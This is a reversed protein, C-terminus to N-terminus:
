AAGFLELFRGPWQELPVGRELFGCGHSVFDPAADALLHITRRTRPRLGALYRGAQLEQVYIDMNKTNEWRGRRQTLIPDETEEYLFTAGGGRLGALDLM